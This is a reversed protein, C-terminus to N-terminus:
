LFRRRCHRRDVTQGPAGRAPGCGLGAVQSGASLQEPSRIRKFSFGTNLVIYRDPNLPNPFIMVPVHRRSPFNQGKLQIARDNWRLPLKRIMRSLLRNSQPDGWLVLHANAMDESTVEIDKKVLAKGRFQSRWERLAQDLEQKIWLGSHEDFPQGTPRVMIFRDMFADDIPGQLGPKKRM